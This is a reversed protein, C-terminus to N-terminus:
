KAISRIDTTGTIQLTYRPGRGLNGAMHSANSLWAVFTGAPYKTIPTDEIEFLFGPQWDQLFVIIRIIDDTTVSHYRCFSTYTDRHYPLIDGPLMKYYSTGIHDFDYGQQKLDSLVTQTSLPQPHRFDCQLGITFDRRYVEKWHDITMPDNFPEYFYDLSEIEDLTWSVPIKGIRYSM